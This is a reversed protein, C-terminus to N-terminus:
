HQVRLLELGVFRAPTGGFRLRAGECQAFPGGWDAHEVDPFCAVLAIELEGSHGIM